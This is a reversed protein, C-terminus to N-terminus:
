SRGNGNSRRLQFAVRALRGRKRKHIRRDERVRRLEQEESETLYERWYRGSLVGAITARSVKFNNALDAYSYQTTLYLRKIDSVEVNDLIAAPNHEGGFISM